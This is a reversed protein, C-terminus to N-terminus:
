HRNGEAMVMGLLRGDRYVELWKVSSTAAAFLRKIQDMNRPEVGDVRVLRDGSELGARAARSGTRVSGITYTRPPADWTVGTGADEPSASELGTAFVINVPQSRRHVTLNSAADAPTDLTRLDNLTTVSRGNSETIIDGPRLGAVDGPFGIWVERVLLGDTRKFHKEEDPSLPGAAFGYQGLLRQEASDERQLMGVISATAVAAIRRDGCPLIVALLNSDIDFLGGGIMTNTLSITSVIEQVSVVSCMASAMQSFTGAAFVPDTDTRWVAVIWDGPHPLFEARHAPNMSRPAAGDPASGVDPRALAMMPLNPGWMTPRMPADGSASAVTLAAAVPGRQIPGTIIRQDDWAIGSVSATRIRGISAAVNQAVGAFYNTMDKLSRRETRKALQQIETESPLPPPSQPIDRPRALWGGILILGAAIALASVYSSNRTTPSDV